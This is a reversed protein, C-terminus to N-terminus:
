QNSVLDLSWLSLDNKNMFFLYNDNMDLDLKYGDIIRDSQDFLTSVLNIEGTGAKIQWVKDSFSITGKYWDDPYVGVPLQAPVACYLLDKYFNGWACKDTLTRITADTGTNNKIDYISTLVNNNNGTVSIVAYRADHSVKVTLGPLPGALKKWTGTKANVIYAYGEYSASANTTIVITNEEPWDATVQTLPTEFLRIPAKGDFGSIYGVGNGNENVMYFVRDRKPSSAVALPSKNWTNGKLQYPTFNPDAQTSSAVDVRKVVNASITQISSSNGEIYQAVFSTLNKNWWSDYIRPFVTNSLTTVELTNSGTEFVNGRGRDVWRVLTVSASSGLKGSSITTSAAFGGVPANSILRLSPVKVFPSTSTGITQGPTVTETPINGTPTPINSGGSPTRDIPIFGGSPAPSNVLVVDTVQGSGFFFYWYAGAAGLLLIVLILLLYKLKM